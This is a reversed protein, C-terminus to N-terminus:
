AAEPAAMHIAQTPCAGECFACGICNKADKLFPVQNPNSTGRGTFELVGTPCVEICAGCAVCKSQVVVPQQWLSRKVMRCAQGNQDVVAEFPCIRGCAGCDICLQVHILHLNKREGSIAATPCVRTCSTCGTCASTISHTM